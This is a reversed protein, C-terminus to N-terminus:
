ISISATLPGVPGRVGLEQPPSTAQPWRSGAERLSACQGREQEGTFKLPLVSCSLQYELLRIIHKWPLDEECVPSHHVAGTVAEDSDGGHIFSQM